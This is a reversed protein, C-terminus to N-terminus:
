RQAPHRPIPADDQAKEQLGSCSPWLMSGLTCDLTSGFITTVTKYHKFSLSLMKSLRFIITIYAILSISQHTPYFKRLLCWHALIGYVIVAVATNHLTISILECVIVIFCTMDLPIPVQSPLIHGLPDFFLIFVYTNKYNRLIYLGVLFSSRHVSTWPTCGIVVSNLLFLFCSCLEPVKKILFRFIWGMDNLYFM